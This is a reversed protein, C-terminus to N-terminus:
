ATAAPQAVRETGVDPAVDPRLLFRLRPLTLTGLASTAAVPFRPDLGAAGDPATFAHLDPRGREVRTPAVELEFQALRAGDDTEVPHLGTVYQIDDVGIPRPSELTVDFWPATVRARDYRRVYRVAEHRGGIGWGGALWAVAEPGADVAAAVVLARARAGSRCSLRVQAVTFGGRPGDAVRITLLTVLTPITPVLGAPLFARGRPGTHEFSAQFIEADPLEIPEDAPSTLRPTTMTTM